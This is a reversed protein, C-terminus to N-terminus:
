NGEDIVTVEFSQSYRNSARNGAILEWTGTSITAVNTVRVGCESEMPHAAIVEDWPTTYSQNKLDYWVGDFTVVCEIFSVWSPDPVIRVQFGDKERVTVASPLIYHSRVSPCSLAVYVLVFFKVSM